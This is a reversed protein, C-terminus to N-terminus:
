WEGPLYTLGLQFRFKQSFFGPEILASKNERSVMIMIPHGACLNIYDEFYGFQYYPAGSHHDFDWPCKSDLYLITFDINSTYQIELHYGGDDEPNFLLVASSNHVVDFERYYDYVVNPDYDPRSIFDLNYDINMIDNFSTPYNVNYDSDYSNYCQM